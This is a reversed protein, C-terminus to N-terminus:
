KKNEKLEQIKSNINSIEIEARDLIEKRSQEAAYQTWSKYEPKTWRGLLAGLSFADLLVCRIEEGYEKIKADIEKVWCEECLWHRNFYLNAVKKGTSGCRGCYGLNAVENFKTM